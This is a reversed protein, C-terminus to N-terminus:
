SAGGKAKGIAKRRLERAYEYYGKRRSADPDADAMEQYNLAELMDPAALRVQVDPELHTLEEDGTNVDRVVIAELDPGVMFHEVFDADKHADMTKAKEMAAQINEADISARSYGHNWKFIVCYKKTPANKKTTTQKETETTM